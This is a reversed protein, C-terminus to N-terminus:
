WQPVPREVVAWLRKKKQESIPIWQFLYQIMCAWLQFRDWASSWGPWPYTIRLVKSEYRYWEPSPRFSPKLCHSVWVHMSYRRYDLLDFCMVLFFFWLVVQLWSVCFYVTWYIDVIDCQNRKRRMKKKM